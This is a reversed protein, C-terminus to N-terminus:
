FLLMCMDLTISHMLFCSSRFSPCISSCGLLLIDRWSRRLQPRRLQPCLLLMASVANYGAVQVTVFYIMGTFNIYYRGRM